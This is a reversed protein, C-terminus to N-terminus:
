AARLRGATTDDRRAPPHQTVPLRTRLLLALKDRQGATLPPASAVLEEIRSSL